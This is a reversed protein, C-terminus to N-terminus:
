PQSDMGEGAYYDWRAELPIGEAGPAPPPAGWSLPGQTIRGARLCGIKGGGRYSGPWAPPEPDGPEEPGSEPERLRPRLTPHALYDAKIPVLSPGLCTSLSSGPGSPATSPGRPAPHNPGQAWCCQGRPAGPWNHHGHSLGLSRVGEVQLSVGGGSPSGPQFGSSPRLQRDGPSWMVEQQDLGSRRLWPARDCGDRLTLGPGPGLDIGQGKWDRRSKCYGRDPWFQLLRFTIPNEVQWAAM